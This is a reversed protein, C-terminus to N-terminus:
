KPVPELAASTEPIDIREHLRALRRPAWWNAPGLLRMLAPALVGRILTADTLVALTLGLGFLQIFSVQSTVMGAFAIAMLGAAATFIRATRAVGAAVARTNDGSALWEERIRSLLFVEYDMSVGFAICFMLIPMTPALYGTPTFGLLGALHGEQFVWVMAGFTAALSLTNLLLAKIPLLVSGTFFFLVVLTSVVIVAVALPVKAALADLADVSEAAAGGLLARGPAPVARVAELQEIAAPSYPDLRTGLRVYTGADDRMGPPAAAIKLGGIYVGAASLVSTVGEIRSLREAYAAIEADGGRYGPMAVLVGAMANERFGTRLADGVAHSAGGSIVRDDPAGFRVSLFPSGLVLLLAIVALAAPVPRRMVLRVTRYWRTETVEVPRPPPRRLWRRLPVRVDLADVRPGLLALAAPVLLLTTFVAAGLVALGAYALSRLFYLPFVLLTSLSLAIVVGSFLVTRGATQATRSVAAATDSGGALEERFRSVMFLSSDIAVAFGLASMMNLAFISVDGVEALLRLIPLTAFINFVGVALPILAATVSGFVLILALGTLPVAIAETVLLDIVIRRSMEDVAAAQGGARVTVGDFDGSVQEAIAGARKPADTDDGAVHALVLGSRGDNGRLAQRLDPALEWYSQVADIEGRGRLDATLREGATRAAPSDLGDPATVLLVLNPAAGPFDRHLFAAVEASETDSPLYGGSKLHAPASWGLAVCIIGILLAGYLITRPRRTALRALGVLM